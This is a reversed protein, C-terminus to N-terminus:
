RRRPPAEEITLERKVQSQRNWEDPTALRQVNTDVLQVHAGAMQSRPAQERLTCGTLVAALVNRSELPECLTVTCRDLRIFAEDARGM